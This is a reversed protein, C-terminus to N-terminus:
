ICQTRFPGSCQMVVEAESAAAVGVVLADLDLSIFIVFLLVETRLCHAPKDFFKIMSSGKDECHVTLKFFICYKFYILILPVHMRFLLIM